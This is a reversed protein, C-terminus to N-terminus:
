ISRRKLEQRTHGLFTCVVRRKLLRHELILLMLLLLVSYPWCCYRGTLCCSPLIFSRIDELPQKPPTYQQINIFVKRRFFHFRDFSSIDFQSNLDLTGLSSKLTCYAKRRNEGQALSSLLHAATTSLSQIEFLPHHDSLKSTVM